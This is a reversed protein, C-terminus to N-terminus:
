KVVQWTVGDTDKFQSPKGARWRRDETLICHCADEVEVALDQDLIRDAVSDPNFTVHRGDPQTLTGNVAVAEGFATTSRRVVVELRRHESLRATYTRRFVPHDEPTMAVTFAATHPSYHPLWNPLKM